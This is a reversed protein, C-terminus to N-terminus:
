LFAKLRPYPDILIKVDTAAQTILEKWRLLYFKDDEREEPKPNPNM